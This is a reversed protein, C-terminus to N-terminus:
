KCAEVIESHNGTGVLRAIGLGIGWIGWIIVAPRVMGWTVADFLGHTILVIQAALLGAGFGAITMNYLRMGQRYLKWISHTLLIFVLMWAAFGPIGLDVAIQLFLNHSHPLTEQLILPYLQETMHPFSGMGIGTIAFDQIMYWGRSWVELRKAISEGSVMQALFAGILLCVTILMAPVYRNRISRLVSVATIGVVAALIGTRSQTLILVPVMLLMILVYLARQIYDLKSWRFTLPAFVCPLLLALYGAMVNPNITDEGLLIFRDYISQPILASKYRALTWDVGFLAGLCLVVGTGALGWFAIRARMPTKTWDALTYFFAIGLLLRGVQPMTLDIRPTILLSVGAMAVLGAVPWDVPTQVFPRGKAIWRVLILASAVVLAATLARETAVSSAVVIALPWIAQDDIARIVVLVLNLSKPRVPETTIM